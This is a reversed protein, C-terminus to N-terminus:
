NFFTFTCQVNPYVQLTIADMSMKHVFRQYSESVGVVNTRLTIMPGRLTSITADLGEIKTGLKVFDTYDKNILTLLEQQLSHQYQNLSTKVEDLPMLRSIEMFKMYDWSPDFFDDKKFIDAKREM